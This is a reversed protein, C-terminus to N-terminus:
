NMLNWMHIFDYPIHRERVPKHWKAYHKGPGDMSNYLTFNDEIECGLLIEHHLHGMTTKDVWRSTSVQEAEM